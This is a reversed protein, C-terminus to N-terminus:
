KGGTHGGGELMLLSEGRGQEPTSTTDPLIVIPAELGKAGHVTMVRVEGSGQEMNRKIEIEGAQFWNVFGAFSTGHTEEYELARDLFADIADNAESGLRSVIRLRAPGLIASFFEFPRASPADGILRHLFAVASRFPEADRACLSQWLSAGGRAAAIDILQDESLPHQLLPSKLLCALAHDDEPMIAFQALAVLDLVAINEGLKLRDAGAVPVQENWLARIMADFFSNRQRVLILIDGPQVARNRAPLMRKGIWGKITAALQQAL